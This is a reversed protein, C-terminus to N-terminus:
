SNGAGAKASRAKSADDVQETFDCDDNDCILRHGHRKTVSELRYSAGCKPCPSSVPKKWSVFDCGPYGTCGYFTRGRRSRRSAIPKSCKPCDVGVLDQKVYRCEPYGSCAVYEGYRGSKKALQKGCDPCKEDLMVDRKVEIQGETIKIKRTTKCEPYGTCALFPGWRGRRMAMAQGCKPCKEDLEPLPENNSDFDRTNKCEPYTECALFEGFRGWRRVMKAGCKDCDIDTKIQRQKVNEMERRARELDKRFMRAFESLTEVGSKAGEEVQDLEREMRATYAIEFIDGFHKVMLDVVLEGIETPKFRGEIKDVYDRDALVSLISAYTSPRGIGNEELARVLMAESYRPPPQTFSQLPTVKSATLAEGDRLEPLLKDSGSEGNEAADEDRVEQYVKLWGPFRMVQGTARFLADGAAIDVKTVDFEAVAMQSALFRNWILTYLRLEDRNLVSALREPPLEM